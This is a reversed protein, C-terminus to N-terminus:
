LVKQWNSLETAFLWATQIPQLTFYYNPTRGVVASLVQAHTADVRKSAVGIHFTHLNDNDQLTKSIQKTWLLYQEKGDTSQAKTVTLYLLTVVLIASVTKM